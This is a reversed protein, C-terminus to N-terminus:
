KKPYNSSLRYLYKKNERWLVLPWHGANSQYLKKKDFDIYMYCATVFQSNTYNCMAANVKEMISSPNDYEDKYFFFIVKLMASIFAAPIGHGSVDAILVGIKNEEKIQFEYFDGGLDYMPEYRAAIVFNDSIPMELPLLSQQIEHAIFIVRKIINLEDHVKISTKLSILTNVRAILEEKNFPKTLYDNAGADLGTVIDEPKNKVTLM